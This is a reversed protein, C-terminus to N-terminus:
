TILWLIVSGLLVVTIGMTRISSIPEQCLKEVYSKWKNPFLAPMLGEIIFALAIAMVITNSDM